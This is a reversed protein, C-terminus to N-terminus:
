VYKDRKYANTIACTDFEPSFFGVLVSKIANQRAKKQVNGHLRGSDWRLAPAQGRWHGAMKM